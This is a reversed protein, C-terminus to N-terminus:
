TAPWPAPPCCGSRGARASRRRRPASWSLRPRPSGGVLGAALRLLVLEIVSHALGILSMVVAMGIAARVLMPKRGYRDALRGWVPATIATGFFTAGFALASWQVVGAETTEGMQAVYLPLFPLLMTLSVLTTFSGFVCVALNRRWYPRNREAYSAGHPETPLQPRSGDNRRAGGTTIPHIDAAM